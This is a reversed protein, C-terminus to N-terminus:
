TQIIYQIIEVDKNQGLDFRRSSTSSGAIKAILKPTKSQYDSKLLIKVVYSWTFLQTYCRFPFLLGLCAISQVCSYAMVCSQILSRITCVKLPRALILVTYIHIMGLTCIEQLLAAIELAIVDKSQKLLARFCDRMAKVCINLESSDSANLLNSYDPGIARRLPGIDLYIFWVDYHM